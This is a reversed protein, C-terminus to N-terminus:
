SPGRRIERLEELIAHLLIMIDVRDSVIFDLERDKLDIERTRKAARGVKDEVKMDGVM